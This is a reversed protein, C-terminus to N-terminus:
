RANSLHVLTVNACVRGRWQDRIYAHAFISEHVHLALPFQHGRELSFAFATDAFALVPIDSDDGTTAQIALEYCKVSEICEQVKDGKGQGDQHEHLEAHQMVHSRGTPAEFLIRIPTCIAACFHGVVVLGPSLPADIDIEDHNSACDAHGNKTAHTCKTADHTNCEDTVIKSVKWVINLGLNDM